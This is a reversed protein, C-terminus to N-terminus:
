LNKLTRAKVANINVPPMKPPVMDPPASHAKVKGVVHSSEETRYRKNATAPHRMASGPYRSSEEEEEEEWGRVSVPKATIRIGKKKKVKKVKTESLNVKVMEVAPGDVEVEVTKEKSSSSSSSGHKVYQFLNIRKGTPHFYGYYLLM